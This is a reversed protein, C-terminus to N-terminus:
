PNFVVFRREGIITEQGLDDRVYVQFHHEGDSLQTTDLFFRWGPAASDPFGPYLNTVGPRLIGLDADGVPFGDVNVVVANVGEADLAWGNAEIIGAFTLGGRPQSVTGFSNENGTFDFCTFTVPIEHINNIQGAIDGVRVTMTHRGPVWGATILQGVDIVFRFGSHPADFLTPYFRTIDLRPLGYCDTLGGTANDFRCSTTSDRIITGDVLLQVYGVGHDGQEVGVDLAYGWFVSYRRNPDAPFNCNGYLEADQNPFEVRGFPVLNATLNLFEFTVDNLKTVEGTISHVQASVTHLGNLFRTSDLEFAFGPAASDPFTPHMQTVGPRSRGYLARGVVRGDVLVDVAFVGDDDLAWGHLSVIGAGANGGGVKGGFSGFPVAAQAASGLVFMLVLAFLTAKRRM